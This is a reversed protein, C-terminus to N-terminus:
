LLEHVIGGAGILVAHVNRRQGFARRFLYACVSQQCLISRCLLVNALEPPGLVELLVLLGLIYVIRQRGLLASRYYDGMLLVPRGYKCLVLQWSSYHTYRCLM